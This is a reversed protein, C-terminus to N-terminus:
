KLRVPQADPRIERPALCRWFRVILTSLDIKRPSRGFTSNAGMCFFPLDFIVSGTPRAAHM